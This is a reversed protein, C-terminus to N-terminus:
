RSDGLKLRQQKASWKMIESGEEGLAYIASKTAILFGDKFHQLTVIPDDTTATVIESKVM